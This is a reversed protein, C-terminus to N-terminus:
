KEYVTIGNQVVSYQPHLINHNSFANIINTEYNDAKYNMIVNRQTRTVKIPNQDIDLINVKTDNIIVLYIQVGKKM